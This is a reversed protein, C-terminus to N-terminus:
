RRIDLLSEMIEIVDERGELSKVIRGLYEDNHDLHTSIKSISAAVEIKKQVESLNDNGREIFNVTGYSFTLIEVLKYITVFLGYNSIISKDTKFPYLNIFFENVLYNEFITSFQNVFNKMHKGIEEYRAVINKILDQDNEEPHLKFIIKVSDILKGDEITYQPNEGGYLSELVNFIMKAYNEGNFNLTEIFKQFDNKLFEESTYIPIIKEIEDYNGSKLIEDLRDLYLGLLILRGDITLRREQLISIAGEQITKLEGTLKPLVNKTWIISIKNNNSHVKESVEIEEFKMPEEPILALVAAAPCSLTLSREFFEGLNFSMRPYTNCVISLYKEGYKRQIKCFNDETLFPCSKRSDLAITYTNRLKNKFIKETIELSDPKPKINAYQKYTKKDIEIRWERCCHADCLQGNCKFKRVYEPQFYPYKKEM